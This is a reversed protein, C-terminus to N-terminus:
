ESAWGLAHPSSPQFTSRNTEFLISPRWTSRYLSTHLTFPSSLQPLRYSRLAILRYTRILTFRSPHLTLLTSSPSLVALRYPSLNKDSHLTFPSSHPSNLFAILGCPSTVYFLNRRGKRFLNTPKPLRQNCFCKHQPLNFNVM